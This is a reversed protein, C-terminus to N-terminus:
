FETNASSNQGKLRAEQRQCAWEVGYRELCTQRAKELSESSRPRGPTSIGKNWAVQLGKTGKNWPAIGTGKGKRAESITKSYKLKEEETKKSPLAVIFDVLSRIFFGFIVLAFPLMILRVIGNTNICLIIFFITLGLTVVLTVLKAM